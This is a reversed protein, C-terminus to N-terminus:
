AIFCINFDNYYVINNDSAASLFLRTSRVKYVIVEDLLFSQVVVVDREPHPLSAGDIVMPELFDVEEGIPNGMIDYEIDARFPVVVSPEVTVKVNRLPSDVPYVRNGMIDVDFDEEQVKPSLLKSIVQSKSKADKIWKQNRILEYKDFEELLVQRSPWPKVNSISVPHTKLKGQPGQLYIVKSDKTIKVIKHPGSYRPFLKASKVNSPKAEVLLGVKDGVSYSLLKKEFSIKLNKQAKEKLLESVIKQVRDLVFKIKLAYSITSDSLNVADSKSVTPSNFSRGFAVQSPSFGGLASHVTTLYVNILAPILLDWNRQDQNVFATLANKFFQHIREAYANGQPHYVTTHTKRIDLFECLEKLVSNCFETGNDSHLRKPYGFQSFVHKYLKSAVTKATKNKLPIAFAYKSFGDIVTMLYRNGRNSLVGADWIDISVLDWVSSVEITGLPVVLKSPHIRKTALCIPCTKIWLDIFQEMRPFYYLSRVKDLTKDRGLHGGSWLSDHCESLIVRRFKAPVCKRLSINNDRIISFSYTLIGQPDLAYHDAMRAVELALSKDLPLKKELIWKVYPGFYVDEKQATIWEQVSPLSYDLKNLLITEETDDILACIEVEESTFAKALVKSSRYKSTFRDVEEIDCSYVTELFDVEEMTRSLTDSPINTEGKIYKITFNFQQLEAAWRAIKGYPDSLKLYGVLPQHDTEAYFKTHYFFPKWKRVALILGLLERETTNYRKETDTFLWSAYSVVCRRGLSDLQFLVAGAGVKSADSQLYFEKKFDPYELLLPSSVLQRKLNQFCAEEKPTWSKEDWDFVDRLLKSLDSTLLGFDKIHHRYYGVMAIFRKLKKKALKGVDLGPSPFSIMAHILDPDPSIGEGSIVKGLVRLQSLCFHCKEVNCKLNSEKLMELVLNLHEIHSDFTNSFIVIDDIYVFCFNGLGESLVQDMYKQFFAPANKLGFPLCMFRFIGTPLLVAALKQSLEELPIQWYGSKLDLISFHTPRGNADNSKGLNEFIYDMHPLPYLSDKTVANLDKYDCVLRYKAKNYVFFVPSAFEADFYPDNYLGVGAAEMERTTSLLLNRMPSKLPYAKKKKKQLVELGGPVLEIKYKIPQGKLTAKGMEISDSGKVLVSHSYADLCDSLLAAEEALLTHHVLVDRRKFEGQWDAADPLEELVKESSVTILSIIEDKLLSFLKEKSESDIVLRASDISLSEECDLSLCSVIEREIMKLPLLSIEKKLRVFVSDVDVKDHKHNFLKNEVVFDIIDSRGIIDIDHRSKFLTFYDSEVSHNYAAGSQTVSAIVESIFRNSKKREKRVISSNIRSKKLHYKKKLRKLEKALHDIMSVIKIRFEKLNDNNSKAQHFKSRTKRGCFYPIVEEPVQLLNLEERLLKLAVSVNELEIKICLLTPDDLVKDYDVHSSGIGSSYVRENFIFDNESSPVTNLSISSCDVMDIDESSIPVPTHKENVSVFETSSPELSNDDFSSTAPKVVTNVIPSLVGGEKLEFSRIHNSSDFLSIFYRDSLDLSIGIKKGIQDTGILVDCKLPMAEMIYGPMAVSCGGINIAISAVQANELLKSGFVGWFNVPLRSKYYKLNLSNVLSKSILTTSSGTDIIVSLVKEGSSCKFLFKKGKGPVGIDEEAANFYSFQSSKLDHEVREDSSLEIKKNLFDNKDTEATISVTKANQSSSSVADTSKQKSSTDVPNSLVSSSNTLDLM